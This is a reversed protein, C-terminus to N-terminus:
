KYCHLFTNIVFKVRRLEDDRLEGNSIRDFTKQRELLKIVKCIFVGGQKTERDYWIMDIRWRCEVILVRKHDIISFIINWVSLNCEDSRLEKTRKMLMPSKYVGMEYVRYWKVLSLTDSHSPHMAVCFTFCRKRLNEKSISVRNGERKEHVRIVTIVNFVQIRVLKELNLCRWVWTVFSEKAGKKWMASKKM